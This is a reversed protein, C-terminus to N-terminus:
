WNTLGKRESVFQQGQLPKTLLNAWMVQTPCHEVTIVGKAIQESMWFHRIEIHKTRKSCPGGNDVLKMTSENDQYAVAATPPYGQAIAFNRASILESSVDSFAILEAETSSKATIPQKVSTVYIPGGKGFIISAGTHSKCDRKHIAYSADIYAKATPDTGFEIVIGRDPTGMLYGIVRDLKAMDDVTCERVRTTLWSVPLLVDPRARKALYLLKAVITRFRSEGDSALRPSVPVIFLNDAAPTPYKTLVKGTDIIDDTMQKMTVVAAGPKSIFDVTMGVYEIVDGTHFAVEPFKSELYARLAAIGEARDCTVLLDDVYLVVTVMTGDALRKNLVCKEHVNAIFGNDVLVKTILDHWLRAAEVTGYLAKLLRVCVTGDPRLYQNYKPDLEALIKACRAEIVMNVQVGTGEMSANLYAAGIDMSAVSKGKLAADGCVFLVSAPTATPSSLNTYLSKDQRDGGAVLRAKSKIFVGSPSMKLKMFISSRIVRSRQEHSLDSTHVPTFVGLTLMQNLEARVAADTEVPRERMAQAVSLRHIQHDVSQARTQVGLRSVPPPVPVPQRMARRQVGLRAASSAPLLHVLDMAHQLAEEGELDQSDGDLYSAHYTNPIEDGVHDIHALLVKDIKGGYLKGKFVGAIPTGVTPHDTVWAEEPALDAMADHQVRSV